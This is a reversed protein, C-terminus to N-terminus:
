ELEVANAVAEHIARAKAGSQPRNADDILKDPNAANCRRMGKTPLGVSTAPTTSTM